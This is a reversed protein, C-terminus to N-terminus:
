EIPELYFKEEEGEDPVDELSEESVPESPLEEKKPWVGSFDLTEAEIAPRLREVPAPDDPPLGSEEGVSPPAEDFDGATADPMALDTNLLVDEAEAKDDFGDPNPITQSEAIEDLLSEYAELNMLMFVEDSGPDVIVAKDGTRRLLRLTRELQINNM